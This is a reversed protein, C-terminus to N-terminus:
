NLKFGFILLDDLQKHNGKWENFVNSLHERQHEMGFTNISEFEVLLNKRMFKKNEPGGFQDQFGDSYIYLTDNPQVPISHKEFTVQKGKNLNGGVHRNVGKHLTAKGESVVVLPNKAGAYEITDADPPIVVVAADMGERSTTNQGQHLAEAIYKDIKMLIAEPSIEGEINVVQNFLTNGMMSMFAGPIGHGTCDLAAIVVHKKKKGVWYFDGSVIDRPQYFVFHQKVLSSIYDHDPLMANQIKSGAHISEETKKNQYQLTTLANQLKDASTSIEINQESIKLNQKELERNAKKKNTAIRFQFFGVSAIFILLLALSLSAWKQKEIFVGQLENKQELLQIKEEAQKETEELLNKLYFKDGELNNLKSKQQDLYTKLLIAAQEEDLQNISDLFSYHQKLEKLTNRLHDLEEQDPNGFLALEEKVARNYQSQSIEGRYYRMSNKYSLAEAYNTKFNFPEDLSRFKSSLYQTNLFKELIDVASSFYTYAKSLNNERMYVRGLTVKGIGELYPQKRNKSASVAALMYKKSIKRQKTSNTYNAKGLGLESMIYVKKYKYKTSIKKSVSFYSAATKKNEKELELFGLNLLSICEMEYQKSMKSLSRANKYTKDALDHENQTNYTTGLDLLIVVTLPDSKIKKALALAEQHLAIAEDFTSFNRFIIAKTNTAEIIAEKDRLKKAIKIAKNVISIPMSHQHPSNIQHRLALQSLQSVKAPSDELKEVQKLTIDENIENALSFQM